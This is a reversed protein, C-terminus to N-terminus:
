MGRGLGGDRRRLPTWQDILGVAAIALMAPICGIAVLGYLGVLALRKRRLRRALGHLVALGVVLYALWLVPLANVAAFRLWGDAVLALAVVVLTATGAARPLEIATFPATPRLALGWRALMAQSVAGAGWLVGLWTAVLMAPMLAAVVRILGALDPPLPAGLAVRVQAAIGDAVLTAGADGGILAVVLGILAVGYGTLWLLPRGPSAWVLGGAVRQPGVAAQVMLLTPAGVGVVYAVMGTVDILAVATVAGAAAARLAQGAGLWLGAAFLPLPTLAFVALASYSALHFLTGSLVGLAVSITWANPLDAAM